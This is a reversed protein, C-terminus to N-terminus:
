PAKARPERVFGALALGDRAASAVAERPDARYREFVPVFQAPDLSALVPLAAAPSVGQDLSAALLAGSRAGAKVLLMGALDAVQAQPDELASMLRRGAAPLGATRWVAGAAIVAAIRSMSM